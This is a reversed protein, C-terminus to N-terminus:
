YLVMETVFINQEKFESMNYPPSHKLIAKMRENYYNKVDEPATQLREQVWVHMVSPIHHKNDQNIFSIIYQVLAAFRPGDIEEGDVRKARINKEIHTKLKVLADTFRKELQNL